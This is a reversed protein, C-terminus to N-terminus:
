LISIILLLGFFNFNLNKLNKFFLIIGVIVILYSLFKLPFFFNFILSILIIIYTGSFFDELLTKKPNLFFLKNFIVSVGYVSILFIILLFLNVM